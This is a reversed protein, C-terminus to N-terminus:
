DFLRNIKKYHVIYTSLFLGFTTAIPQPIGASVLSNKVIQGGVKGTLTRVFDNDRVFEVVAALITHQYEDQLQNWESALDVTILGRALFNLLDEDDPQPHPVYPNDYADLLRQLYQADSNM